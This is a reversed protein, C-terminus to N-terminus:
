NSQVVTQTTHLVTNQYETLKSTHKTHKQHKYPFIFQEVHPTQSCKRSLRFCTAEASVLFLFRSNHIKKQIHTLFTSLNLRYVDKIRPQSAHNYIYIKLFFFMITNENM